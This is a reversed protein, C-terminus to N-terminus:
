RREGEGGRGRDDCRVRGVVDVFVVIVIRDIVGEADEEEGKTETYKYM